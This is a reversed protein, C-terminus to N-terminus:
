QNTNMLYLDNILWIFCAPHVSYAASIVRQHRQGGRNASQKAGNCGKEVGHKVAKMANCQSAAGGIRVIGADFLSCAGVMGFMISFM